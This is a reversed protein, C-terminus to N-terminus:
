LVFLRPIRQHKIIIFNGFAIDTKFYLRGFLLPLANGKGMKNLDRFVKLQIFDDPVVVVNVPFPVFDFPHKEVTELRM